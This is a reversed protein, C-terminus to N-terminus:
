LDDASKVVGNIGNHLQLGKVSDHLLNHCRTFTETQNIKGSNLDQLCANLHHPIAASWKVYGEYYESINENIVEILTADTYSPSETM